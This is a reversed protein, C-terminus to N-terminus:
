RSAKAPEPKTAPKAEPYGELRSRTRLRIERPEVPRNSADTTVASIQKELADIVQQRVGSVREQALWARLVKPDITRTILATAQIAPVAPFQFVGNKAEKREGMVEMEGDVLRRTVGATNKVANWEDLRVMNVGPRFLVKAGGIGSAIYIGAHKKGTADIRGNYDIQILEMKDNGQELSGGNARM